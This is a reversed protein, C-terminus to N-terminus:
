CRFRQQILAPLVHKSHFSLLQERIDKWFSEEFKVNLIQVNFQLNTFIILYCTQTFTLAMQMQVQYFFKHKKKLIIEGDKLCFGFSSQKQRETVAAFPTLERSASLCKVELVVKEGDITALRDPTAALVGRGEEVFLGCENVSCSHGNQIMQQIFKQVAIDEHEIGYRLHVSRAKGPRNITIIRKVKVTPDGKGCCDKAISATIRGKRARFWEINEGQGRTKMEIEIRDEATM